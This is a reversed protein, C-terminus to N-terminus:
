KRKWFRPIVFPTQKRYEQYAKGFRMEMEKEELLKIYVFLLIAGILVLAVASISGIIAAVGLYLVIAGLAMPNRCYAYPGQTILQHTAMIPVPTGRGNTFQIYIAWWAFLIGASIFICGIAVNAAGYALRSLGFQQDLLSSVYVLAGPLIGLFLFGEMILAALRKAPSYEREAQRLLKEKM